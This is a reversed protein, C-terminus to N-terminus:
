SQKKRNGIVHRGVLAVGLSLSVLSFLLEDMWDSDFGLWDRLMQRLMILGVNAMVVMLLLTLVWVSWRAFSGFRDRMKPAVKMRLRVIAYLICALLVGLVIDLVWHM